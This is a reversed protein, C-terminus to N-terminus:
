AGVPPGVSAGDGAGSSSDVSSLSGSFGVGLGAVASFGVAGSLPGTFGDGVPGDGSSYLPSGGEPGTVPTGPKDPGNHDTGPTRGEVPAGFGAGVATVAAGTTGLSM